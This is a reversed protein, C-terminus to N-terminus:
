EDDREMSYKGDKYLVKFGPHKLKTKREMDRKVVVELAASHHGDCLTKDWGLDDRLEGHSGCEECMVYTSLECGTARERVEENAAGIYFRLTGFKEKIQRVEGNWGLAYMDIMATLVTGHWGKGIYKVAEEFTIENGLHNVLPRAHRRLTIWEGDSAAIWFGNRILVHLSAHNQARVCAFLPKNFLTELYMSLAATMVGKGSVAPDLWYGLQYEEGVRKISILGSAIGGVTVVRMRIAENRLHVEVSERTATQTWPLNALAARHKEIIKYLCYGDGDLVPRILTLSKYLANM